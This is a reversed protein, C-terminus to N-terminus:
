DTSVLESTDIWWSRGCNNCRAAWRGTERHQHSSIFPYGCDPCLADDHDEM